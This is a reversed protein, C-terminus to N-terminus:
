QGGKVALPLLCPLEEESYRCYTTTIKDPSQLNKVKYHIIALIQLHHVELLVQVFIGFHQKVM